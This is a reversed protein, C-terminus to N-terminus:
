GVLYGVIMVGSWLVEDCCVGEFVCGCCLMFIVSEDCVLVCLM